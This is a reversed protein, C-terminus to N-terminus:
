LSDVGVHVNPFFWNIYLLIAHDPIAAHPLPWRARCRHEHKSDFVDTYDM